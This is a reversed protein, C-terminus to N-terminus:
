GVIETDKFATYIVGVIFIVIVILAGMETNTLVTM